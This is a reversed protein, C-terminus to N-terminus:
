EHGNGLAHLEIGLLRLSAETSMPQLGALGNVRELLSPTPRFLADISKAALRAMTLPVEILLPGRTNAQRAVALVVQRFSLPNIEGLQFLRPSERLRSIAIICKSLDGVHIPQIAFNSAIIPVVPLTALRKFLAFVGAASEGYVLGPRVIVEDERDLLLEIQWKSKGYVNIANASASQSSIFIFRRPKGDKCIDRFGDILKRSGSLDIESSSSMSVTEGLSASALHVVADVDRCVPPFADGLQWAVSSGGTGIARQLRFVKIGSAEFQSCLERGIFGNAGTIAVSRVSRAATSADLGRDLSIESTSYM